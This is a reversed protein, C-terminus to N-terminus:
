DIVKLSTLLIEIEDWTPTFDQSKLSLIQNPDPIGSDESTALPFVAVILTDKGGFGVFVATLGSLVGSQPNVFQTYFTYGSGNTFGTQHFNLYYQQEGMVVPPHPIGPPGFEVGNSAEGPLQGNKLDEIIERMHSVAPNMKEYESASFLYIRAQGAMPDRVLYGQLDILTYAPFSVMGASRAQVQTETFRSIMLPSYEFTLGDTIATLMAGDGSFEKSALLYNDDRFGQAYTYGYQEYEKVVEYGDEIVIIGDPWNDMLFYYGFCHLTGTVYERFYAQELDIEEGNIRLYFTMSEQLMKLDDQDGCTGQRWVYQEFGDKLPLIFNASGRNDTYIERLTVVSWLEAVKAEVAAEIEGGDNV